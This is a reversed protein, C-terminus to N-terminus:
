FSRFVQLRLFPWGSFERESASTAYAWVSEFSVHVDRVQKSPFSKEIRLGMGFLRKMEESEDTTKLGWHYDVHLSPGCEVWPCRFLAQAEWGIYGIRSGQIPLYTSLFSRFGFSRSDSGSVGKGYLDTGAGSKLGMWVNKKPITKSLANLEFNDLSAGARQDIRFSGELFGRLGSGREFDDSISARGIAAEVSYSAPSLYEDIRAHNESISTRLGLVWGSERADTVKGLKFLGQVGLTAAKGVVSPGLAQIGVAARGTSLSPAFIPRQLSVQPAPPLIVRAAEAHFAILAVLPVIFHSM